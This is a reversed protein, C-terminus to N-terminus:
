RRKASADGLPLAKIPCAQAFLNQFELFIKVLAPGTQATPATIRLSDREVRVAGPFGVFYLDCWACDSPYSLKVGEPRKEEIQDILEEVDTPAPSEFALETFLTGFVAQFAPGYLADASQIHTVQRQWLVATPDASDLRISVHYDFDPTRISARGETAPVVEVDRRKYGFHERILGHTRATDGDLDDAALGAVFRESSPTARDPLRFGKRYGSLEKVRDRAEACLRVRGLPPVEPRASTQAALVPGLDALVFDAAVPGYATPTQTVPPAFAKRLSRPVERDLYQQLSAATVKTRQVRALPARGAFAEILHHSWVRQRLLPAPHSAEDAACASFCLLPGGEPFARRMAEDTRPEAGDWAGADLFVVARCKAARVTDLLDELALSTATLDDAQSDACTIFAEGDATFGHGALFLFLLDDPRLTKALRRLRSEVTTKTAANGLLLTQREPAFGLPALAAAFAAADAEAFEVAPLQLDQCRDVAVLFAVREGMVRGRATLRVAREGM